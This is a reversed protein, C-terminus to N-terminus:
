HGVSEGLFPGAAPHNDDRQSIGLHPLNMLDTLREFPLGCPQAGRLRLGAQHLLERVDQVTEVRRQTERRDKRTEVLFTSTM